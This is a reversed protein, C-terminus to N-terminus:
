EQGYFKIFLDLQFHINNRKNLPSAKTSLGDDFDLLICNGMM